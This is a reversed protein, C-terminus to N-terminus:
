MRRLRVSGLVFNGYAFFIIVDDDSGAIRRWWPTHDLLETRDAAKFLSCYHATGGEPAAMVGGMVCGEPWSGSNGTWGTPTM